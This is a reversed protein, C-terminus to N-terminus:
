STNNHTNHHKRGERKSSASKEVKVSEWERRRRTRVRTRKREMVAERQREWKEKVRNSSRKGKRDMKSKLNREKEEKRM